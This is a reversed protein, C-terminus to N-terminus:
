GYVPHRSDRGAARALSEDRSVTDARAAPRRPAANTTTNNVTTGGIMTTSGGGSPANSAQLQRNGQDLSNGSTAPSASYMSFKEQRDSLGISGGNVAKTVAKTDNAAIGRDIVRSKYYAVAIRAATMPDSALDPNNVLDMGVLNGFSKYNDKGTLQIFGRGRYRYGDGSSNNGMRGGYVRNAIAEPNRAEANALEDTKYYKGFTKRLGKASYNLNESLRKFGGSEHDVQALLASRHMGTIGGEDMALMVAKKGDGTPPSSLTGTGTPVSVPKPPTLPATPYNTDVTDSDAMEAPIAKSDAGRGRGGRVRSQSVPTSKPLAAAGGGIGLKSKVSDPLDKELVKKGQADVYGGGSMVTNGDKDTTTKMESKSYGTGALKKNTEAASLNKAAVATQDAKDIKAQNGKGFWGMATQIADNIKVDLEFKDNLWTGVAYGLVGAIGVLGTKGLLLGAMPLLGALGGLIALPGKFFDTIKSWLGGLADMIGEFLGKKKPGTMGELKDFREDMHERLEQIPDKKGYGEAEDKYAYKKRLEGKAKDKEQISLALRATEIAAKKGAGLKDKESLFKYTLNGKATVDQHQSGAPALPNFQVNRNKGNTGKIKVTKPMIMSKIDAVDNKTDMTVAFLTDMKRNIGKLEGKIQKIGTAVIVNTKRSSSGGDGDDDKGRGKTKKSEKALFRDYWKAAGGMGMLRLAIGGKTTDEGYMSSTKANWAARAGAKIRSKGQSGARIMAASVNTTNKFDFDQKPLSPPQNKAM